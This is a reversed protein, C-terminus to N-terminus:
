KQKICLYVTEKQVLGFKRLEEASFKKVYDDVKVSFGAARVRDVYDLGYMRVHDYQGFVRQREEPTAIAPDEFTKKRNVDIPVQLVAWGGPKLVRYLERMALGDDVIHELVHNCLIVDFTNEKFSIDTIDMKVMALDSILDASIYDVNPKSKLEKQIIYEPAFHLVKLKDSFLNTNTKFYLWLLRHRELSGCVPCKANPRLNSEVGFPLFMYFYNNCCPCYCSMERYSSRSFINFSRNDDVRLVADTEEYGLAELQKQVTSYAHCGIIVARDKYEQRLLQEPGCVPLGDFTGGQKAPDNDIFEIELEKFALKCQQYISGPGWILLKDNNIFDPTLSM